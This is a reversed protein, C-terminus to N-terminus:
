RAHRKLAEILAHVMESGGGVFCASLAIGVLPYAFIGEFFNVGALASLLGGVILVLYKVWFKDIGFKEFIPIIFYEVLREAAFALLGAVAIIDSLTAYVTGM